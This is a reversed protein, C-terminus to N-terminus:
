GSEALDRLSRLGGERKVVVLTARAMRPHRVEIKGVRSGVKSHQMGGERATARPDCGRVAGTREKEGYAVVVRGCTSISGQGCREGPVHVACARRDAVTGQNTGGGPSPCLSPSPRHAAELASVHHDYDRICCLHHSADRRAPSPSPSPSSM